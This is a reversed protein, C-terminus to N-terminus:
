RRAAGLTRDFIIELVPKSGAQGDRKIQIQASKIYKSYGVVRQCTAKALSEAKALAEASADSAVTVVCNLINATTGARYVKYLASLGAVTPRNGVFKTLKISRTLAYPKVAEILGQMSLIGYAHTIEMDIFGEPGAPIELVLENETKKTIKIAKGAVTVSNIDDLNEGNLKLSQGLTSVAIRSNITFSPLPTGTAATPAMPQAASFPSFSETVGCVQGNSYTRQPLAVWAGGTYHFIEDTAAGDLCVTVPGSIGSVQIDVIKTASTVVFPTAGASAPNDIPVLTVVASSSTATFALSVRPLVSTAPVEAATLGSPISVVQSDTVSGAEVTPVPDWLAYMTINASSTPQYPFAVVTGSRSLSWGVFAFGSRTPAVPASVTEGTGFSANAVASGSSSNFTVTSLQLWKAYLANGAIASTTPNSILTGNSTNSWGLFRYGSLTPSPPLTLSTVRNGLARAGLQRLISGTAFSVTNLSTNSSFADNGITHVSAPIEISTLRAQQFVNNSIETLQSNAAFTVEDLQSANLAYGEIFTVSAPITIRRIGSAQFAANPIRTLTSNQAFTVETVQSGRFAYQGMTSVTAPINLTSLQSNEFAFSSLATVSAPIEYTSATLWPAYAVLTTRTKNFLVGGDVSFNPNEAPVTLRLNTGFPLRGVSTLSAPLAVTSQPLGNFAENGISTLQSGSAFTVSALSTSGNFSDNGLSVLSAPFTVSTLRTNRFAATGITQLQSGAEFTLTTLATVGNFAADAIATVGAPVEFSALKTGSFLYDSIRTLGSNAAITFTALNSCNAFAYGAITTVSAPLDVRLLSGNNQFLDIKTVGDPIVATGACNKDTDSAAIFGSGYTVTFNGSTSCNYDGPAPGSPTTAFARDDIPGINFIMMALLAVIATLKRGFNARLDQYFNLTRM